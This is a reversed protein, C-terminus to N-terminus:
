TNFSVPRKYLCCVKANWQKSRDSVTEAPAARHKLVAQIEQCTTAKIAGSDPLRGSVSQLRSLKRELDATPTSAWYALVKPTPKPLDLEEQLVDLQSAKPSAEGCTQAAEQKAAQKFPGSM